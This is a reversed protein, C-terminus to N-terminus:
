MGCVICVFSVCVCVSVRVYWMCVCLILPLLTDVYMYRVSNFVLVHVGSSSKKKGKQSPNILNLSFM